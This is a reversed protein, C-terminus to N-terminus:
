DFGKNLPKALVHDGHMAQIDIMAMVFSAEHM